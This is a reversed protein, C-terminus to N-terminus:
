FYYLIGIVKSVILLPSLPNIALSFIL